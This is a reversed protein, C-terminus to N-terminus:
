LVERQVRPLEMVLNEGYAMAPTQYGATFNGQLIKQTILLSAYATLDYAEPTRQRATVTQGNANTARGWMYSTAQTRMVDGPGAPGRDIKRKILSRVIPNRLLWNFLVQVKLLWYAIMPMNTYARINPIGTSYGATAVDGWPLSLVLIPKGGFSVWMAKKGVPESVIRGNIRAAGPEGLKQVTNVATGHSLGSGRITFALKLDVADPLRNKLFLALCDTPVVDFGAGPLLMIGAQKAMADYQRIMEFIDLDGNLDVYHTGTQLCAEVMQKATFNYPGAANVVVKVQRLAALLAPTDDLDIAVYPLGLQAALPALAAARRGALIPSLGYQTAYRAILEGTYGYAGYLLFTNSEM